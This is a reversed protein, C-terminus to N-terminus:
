QRVERGEALGVWGGVLTTRDAVNPLPRETLALRQRQAVDRVRARIDEAILRELLAARNSDPTGIRRPSSLAMTVRKGEVARTREVTLSAETRLTGALEQGIAGRVQEAQQRGLAKLRAEVRAEMEARAQSVGKERETLGAEWITDLEAKARRSASNAAEAMVTMRSRPAPRFDTPGKLRNVSERLSEKDVPSAGILPRLRVVEKELVGAETPGLVGARLQARYLQEATRLGALTDARAALAERTRRDSEERMLREREALAGRESALLEARRQELRRARRDARTAAEEVEALAAERTLRARASARATGGELGGDSIAPLAAEWGSEGTVTWSQGTTARLRALERALPHRQELAALDVYAPRPAVPPAPLIGARCGSLLVGVLLLAPLIASSSPKSCM